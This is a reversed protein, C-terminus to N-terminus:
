DNHEDSNTPPINYSFHNSIGGIVAQPLALHDLLACLDDVSAALSFVGM